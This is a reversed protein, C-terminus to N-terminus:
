CVMLRCVMCVMVWTVSWFNPKAPCYWASVQHTIKIRASYWSYSLLKRLFFIYFITQWISCLFCTCFEPLLVQKKLPKARIEKQKKKNLHEKLLRLSHIPYMFLYKTWLEMGISHGNCWMLTVYFNPCPMFVAYIISNFAEEPTSADDCKNAIFLM